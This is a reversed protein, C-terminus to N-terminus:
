HAAFHVNTAWYGVSRSGLPATRRKMTGREACERESLPITAKLSTQEADVATLLSSSSSFTSLTESCSSRVPIASSPRPLTQYWCAQSDPMLGQFVSSSAAFALTPRYEKSSLGKLPVEPPAFAM